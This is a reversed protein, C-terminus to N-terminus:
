EQRRDIEDITEKMAQTNTLFWLRGREEMEADQTKIAEVIITMAALLEEYMPLLKAHRLFQSRPPRARLLWVLHEAFKKRREEVAVWGTEPDVINPRTAQLHTEVAFSALAENLEQWHLVYDQLRAEGTATAMALPAAPWVLLAFVSILMLARATM